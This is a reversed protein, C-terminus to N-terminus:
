RSIPPTFGFRALINRAGPSQVYTFFARATDSAPDLLVMRQRLPSHYEIPILAHRGLKGFNRSRVLSYAIIGGDTGPTAAFQAAQSVNEGFVLKSQIRDWLGRHRLAEQPM